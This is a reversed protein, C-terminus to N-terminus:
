KGREKAHQELEKIRERLRLVDTLSASKYEEACGTFYGLAAVGCAALRMREIELEKRLKVSERAADILPKLIVPSMVKRFEPCGGDAPTHFEMTESNAALAELEDCLKIIDAVLPEKAFECKDSKGYYHDCGLCRDGDAHCVIKRETMEKEKWLERYKWQWWGIWWGVVLSAALFLSLFLIPIM